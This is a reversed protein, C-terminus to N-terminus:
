VRFGLGVEWSAGTSGSLALPPVAPSRRPLQPSGGLEDRSSKQKRTSAPSSLHPTGFTQTLPLILAREFEKMKHFLPRFSAAVAALGHNAIQPVQLDADM